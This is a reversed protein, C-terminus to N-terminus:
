KVKKGCHPCFVAGEPVPESCFKCITFIEEEVEPPELGTLTTEPPPPAETKTPEEVKEQLLQPAEETKEEVQQAEAKEEEVPRYTYMSVVHGILGSTIFSILLLIIYGVTPEMSLITAITTLEGSIPTYILVLWCLIGITAGLAAAVASIMFNGGVVGPIVAVAIIAAVDLFPVTFRNYAMYRTVLVALFSAIAGMVLKISSRM